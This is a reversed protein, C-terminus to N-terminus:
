STNKFEVEVSLRELQAVLFARREMAAQAARRHRVAQSKHHRALDNLRRAEAAWQEPTEALTM